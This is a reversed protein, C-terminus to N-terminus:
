PVDADQPPWLWTGHAANYIAQPSAGKVGDPHNADHYRYGLPVGNQASM